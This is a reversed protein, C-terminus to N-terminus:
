PLLASSGKTLLKQHEGNKKKINTVNKEGCRKWGECQYNLFSHKCKEKLVSLQEKQFPQCTSNKWLALLTSVHLM